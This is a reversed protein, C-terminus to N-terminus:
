AAAADERRNADPVISSGADSRQGARDRREALLQWEATSVFVAGFAIAGMGWWDGVSSAYAPYITSVFGFLAVAVGACWAPLRWGPARLAAVVLTAAIALTLTAMTGWHFEMGHPSVHDIRQIDLQAVAFRTLPIAALIALTALPVSVRGPRLIEARAPHLIFLLIAPVAILAGRTFHPTMVAGSAAMVVGGVALCLLLQQMAAPRQVPELLQAAAPICLLVVAFAGWGVDHVRHMAEVGGQTWGLVLSPIGLFIGGAFVCLVLASVVFAARRAGRLQAVRPLAPGFAWTEALVVPSRDLLPPNTRELIRWGLM